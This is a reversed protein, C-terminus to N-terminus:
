TQHIVCTVNLNEEGFAPDDDAVFSEALPAGLDAGRISCPQTSPTHSSTVLPMQVLHRQLDARPPRYGVSTRRRPPPTWRPDETRVAASTKAATRKM